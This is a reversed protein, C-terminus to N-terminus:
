AEGFPGLYETVFLQRGRQEVLKSVACVDQLEDALGSRTDIL